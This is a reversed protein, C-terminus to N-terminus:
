SCLISTGLLKTHISSSHLTFNGEGCYETGLIPLLKMVAAMQATWTENRARYTQSVLASISPDGLRSLCELCDLRKHTVTQSICFSALIATDDNERTTVAADVLNLLRYVLNPVDRAMGREVEFVISGISHRTQSAIFGQAEVAERLTAHRDSFYDPGELALANSLTRRQSPSFNEWRGIRSDDPSWNAWACWHPFNAYLLNTSDLNEPLAEVSKQVFKQLWETAAQARRWQCQGRLEELQSAFQVCTLGALTQIHPHILFNAPVGNILIQLLAELYKGASTNSSAMLEIARQAELGSVAGENVHNAAIIAQLYAPLGYSDGLEINLEGALLDRVAKPSM